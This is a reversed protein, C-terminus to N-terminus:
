MRGNKIFKPNIWCEISCILSSLSSIYFKWLLWFSHIKTNNIPATLWQTLKTNWLTIWSFSIFRRSVGKIFFSFSCYVYSLFYYVAIHSDSDKIFSTFYIFLRAWYFIVVYESSILIYKISEYFISCRLEVSSFIGLKM